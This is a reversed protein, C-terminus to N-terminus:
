LKFSGKTAIEDLGRREVMVEVMFVINKKEARGKFNSKLSISLVHIREKLLNLYLYPLFWWVSERWTKSGMGCTAMSPKNLNRPSTM